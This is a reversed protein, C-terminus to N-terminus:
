GTLMGEAVHRSNLLVHCGNTFRVFSCTEIQNRHFYHLSFAKWAKWEGGSALDAMQETSWFRSLWVHCKQGRAMKSNSMSWIYFALREPWQTLILELLLSSLLGAARNISSIGLGGSHFPETQLPRGGGSLPTRVRHTLTHTYELHLNKEHQTHTHRHSNEDGTEKSSLSHHHQIRHPNHLVAFSFLCGMRWYKWHTHRTNIQVCLRSCVGSKLKSKGREKPFLSWLLALSLVTSRWSPLQLGVVGSRDSPSLRWCRTIARKSNGKERERKPRKYDYEIVPHWIYRKCLASFAEGTWRWRYCM